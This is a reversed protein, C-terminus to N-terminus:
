GVIGLVDAVPVGRVLVAELAAKVGLADGIRQWADLAGKPDAGGAASVSLRAKRMAADWLGAVADIENTPAEAAGAGLERATPMLMKSKWIPTKYSHAKAKSPDVMGFSLGSVLEADPLGLERFIARLRSMSAKRARESADDGISALVRRVAKTDADLIPVHEISVNGECWARTVNKRHVADYITDDEWGILRCRSEGWSKPVCLPTAGADLLRHAVDASKRATHGVRRRMGSGDYERSYVTVDRDSLTCCVVKAGKPVLGAADCAAAISLAPEASDPHQKRGQEAVVIMADQSNAAIGDFEDQSSRAVLHGAKGLMEACDVCALPRKGGQGILYTLWGEKDVLDAENGRSGYYSYM